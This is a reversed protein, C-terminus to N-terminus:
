RTYQSWNGTTQFLNDGASGTWTDATSAPPTYVPTSSSNVGNKLTSGSFNGGNQLGSFNPNGGSVTITGSTFTTWQKTQLYGTGDLTVVIGNLSTLKADAM